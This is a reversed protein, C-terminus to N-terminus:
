WAISGPADMSPDVTLFDRVKGILHCQQCTMVDDHSYDFPVGKPDLVYGWVNVTFSDVKTTILFTNSPESRPCSFKMGKLPFRGADIVNRL